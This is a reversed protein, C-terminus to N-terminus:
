LLRLPDISPGHGHESESDAVEGSWVGSESCWESRYGMTPTWSCCFRSMSRHIMLM